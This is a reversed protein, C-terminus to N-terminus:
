HIKALVRGCFKCDGTTMRGGDTTSVIEPNIIMRNKGCTLCYAVIKESLGETSEDGSAIRKIIEEQMNDLKPPEVPTLVESKTESKYNEGKRILNIEADLSKVALKFSAYEAKLQAIEEFLKKVSPNEEEIKNKLLIFNDTLALMHENERKALLAVQAGLNNLGQIVLKEQALGLM